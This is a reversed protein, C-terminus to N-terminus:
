KTRRKNYTKIITHITGYAMCIPWLAIWLVYIICLILSVVAEPFLDINDIEDLCQEALDREGVSALKWGILVYLLVCSWIHIVSTM